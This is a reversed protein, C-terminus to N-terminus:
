PKDRTITLYVAPLAWMDPKIPARDPLPIPGISCVWVWKVRHTLFFSILLDM